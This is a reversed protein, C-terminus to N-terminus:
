QQGMELYHQGMTPSVGSPGFFGPALTTAAVQEFQGRYEKPFGRLVRSLRSHTRRTEMATYDGKKLRIDGLEPYRRKFEDNIKTAKEYDNEMIATLYNRRYERIQDRQKLLYNTLEQENKKDMTSFGLGSLVMEKKTRYGVLMGKDTYTPVRGDPTENAYDAYKPAFAKYVRRGAIGGPIM